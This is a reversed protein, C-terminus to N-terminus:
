GRWDTFEPLPARTTRFRNAPHDPDAYGFSIACLILRDQPIKLMEHLMPAFSAVAAQAVSAVGAAQAALTFAAVFGGSDMAGYPGLEAPSSLIACHPAGFLNFNEMMQRASGARDGKTVGVAEYLAWGCERRRAQYENSYGDPFSLDPAHGGAMAAETLANRLRDTEAGSTITVKWPQANCWSPVKQACRLIQEIVERDVPDPRFARCSHRDKMLADLETLDASKTTM